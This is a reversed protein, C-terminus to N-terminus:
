GREVTSFPVDLEWELAFLALLCEFRARAAVAMESMQLSLCKDHVERLGWLFDLNYDTMFRLPNSSPLMLPAHGEMKPSYEEDTILLGIPCKTGNDGRYRGTFPDDSEVSNSFPQRQVVYWDHAINIAAQHNLKIRTDEELEEM